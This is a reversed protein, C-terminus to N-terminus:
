KKTTREITESAEIGYDALRKIYDADLEYSGQLVVLVAHDSGLGKTLQARTFINFGMRKAGNKERVPFPIAVGDEALVRKVLELARKEADSYDYSASLVENLKAM